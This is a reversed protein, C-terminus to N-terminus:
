KQYYLLNFALIYFLTIRSKTIKGIQEDNKDLLKVSQDKSYKYYNMTGIYYIVIENKYVNLSIILIFIICFFIYNLFATASCVITFTTM